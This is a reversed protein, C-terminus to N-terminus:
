GGKSCYGGKGRGFAVGDVGDVRAVGDVGQWGKKKWLGGRGCLFGGRGFHSGGWGPWPWGKWGQWGKWGLRKVM